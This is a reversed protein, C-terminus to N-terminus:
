QCPSASSALLRDVIDSGWNRSQVGASPAALSMRAPSPPPTSIAGRSPTWRREGYAPILLDGKQRVNHPHQQRCDEEGLRTRSWEGLSPRGACPRIAPNDRQSRPHPM